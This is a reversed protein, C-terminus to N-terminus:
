PLAHLAAILKDYIGDFSGNSMVVIQDGRRVQPVLWAVLTDVSDSYLAPKGMKALEAVIQERDLKESEKLLHPRNIKGIAVGCAKEFALPFEKQFINRRTTNTRPEFLAWIRKEPFKAALGELTERIATPHHAFDDYVTVDNITARVELRRKVGQFTAFAQLIKENSIGLHKAVIIVGAANLASHHGTLPLYFHGAAQGKHIMRFEIGERLPQMAEIKWSVDSRFGYSEVPAFSKQALERVIPDDGNVALLGNRPILNILRSFTLKIDDISRFIDAHDFEINNIITIQPLYHLFKSRKDFFATDYEDGEIVFYPGDEIKMGLGFNQPIGGILLSPNLGATELVWALLSTTTTKGHTGSVVISEKGRIFFERIVDPLSLYFFKQELMYEAEPNGRSIANGVVVLDPAPNLHSEAYGELPRIANERLFTSMPPFVNEDSGAIKYGSKKLQVAMNAMATGCIGIFYISRISDKLM